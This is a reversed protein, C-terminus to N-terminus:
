WSEEVEILYLYYAPDSGCLNVDIHDQIIVKFDCGKYTIVTNLLVEETYGSLDCVGYIDELAKGLEESDTIVHPYYRLYYDRLTNTVAETTAEPAYWELTNIVDIKKFNM